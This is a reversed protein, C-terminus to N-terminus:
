KKDESKKDGQKVPILADRTLVVGKKVTHAPGVKPALVGDVWIDIGGANGFDAVCKLGGPIYFIDGAVMSRGFIVKGRGDEIKVYTDEIAQLIMDSKEKNEVGFRERVPINYVPENAYIDEAVVQETSNEFGANNSNGGLVLLLVILAIFVFGVISVVLWHKRVFLSIKSIWGMFGDQLANKNKEEIDENTVVVETDCDIGLEKKIKDVIEDPNLGLEMAYNRAFGLVYVIEPIRKYNGDELAQLFEEGICLQKAITSIERKRRGMTRANRLIEGVTPETDQNNEVIEKKEDVDNM